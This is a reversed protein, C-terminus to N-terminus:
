GRRVEWAKLTDGVVRLAQDVKQHDDLLGDTLVTRIRKVAGAIEDRETDADHALRGLTDLHERAEVAATTIRRDPM